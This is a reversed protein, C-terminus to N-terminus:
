RAGRLTRATNRHSQKRSGEEVGLADRVGSMVPPASICQSRGMECVPLSLRLPTSVARRARGLRCRTGRSTRRRHVPGQRAPGPHGPWRVPWATRLPDPASWVPRHCFSSGLTRTEEKDGEKGRPEAPAAAGGGGCEPRKRPPRRHRLLRDGKRTSQERREPPRGRPGRNMSCVHGPVRDSWLPASRDASAEHPLQMTAVDQKGAQSAGRTRARCGNGALGAAGM